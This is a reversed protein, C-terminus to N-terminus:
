LMEIAAGFGLLLGSRRWVATDPYAAWSLLGLFAFTLVHHLKDGGPVSPVAPAQTLWLTVLIACWFAVLPLRTLHQSKM